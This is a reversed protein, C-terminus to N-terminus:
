LAARIPVVNRTKRGEVLAMVHEGWATLAERKEAAYTAKNYVGAVGAKHGSIHNVVAEVIHPAEGVKEIMGTVVTRRIDHLRWAFVGSAKDLQAKARNLSSIPKQGNTTFVFNCGHVPVVDDLLRKAPASLPVIHPKKNKTREGALKIADGEVEAWKLQAVENLRSGTLILLRTIAGFPGLEGAARWVAVLETDSLLRERPAAGAPREIATMPSTAIIDRQVCWNFFRNLHAFTKRAKSLAGREKIADLLDLVDRKGIEDIRKGSWAPLLDAEVIRTVQYLSSAKNDAQDWKLWDAVVEPFGMAAAAKQQARAPEIGRDVQKRAERWADRAEALSMAPYTGLTMRQVRGELTFFYTWSKTGGYSLRLALGPYGKDFVDIQGKTPPRLREVAAVTLAKKM